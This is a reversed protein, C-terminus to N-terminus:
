RRKERRVLEFAEHRTSITGVAREEEILALLRGVEPGEPVGLEDGRVLPADQDNARAAEVEPALQSSGVFALADLAWPETTRRFRHIARASRNAPPEAHLLARMYRRLENSIPLEPLREGFAAVLRYAPSDYGALREDFRGGLHALLGLEDLRRYGDADLRELEALVREGAAKEVLAAQSRVLEETLRALRFGLERELRVARVLRLPDDEFISESVARILRLELDERGGSPDVHDGGGIPVAIANVTFDRRALDSDISGHVPTFDITRHDDLVVRWSAHETSLPFPAGGSRDACARAAREPERCVVDVDVIARGLLEDRVAGGVFWADEGALVERVLEDM